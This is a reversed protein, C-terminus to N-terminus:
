CSVWAPGTSCPRFWVFGLWLKRAIKSSDFRYLSKSCCNWCNMFSFMCQSSLVTFVTGKPLSPSHYPCSPRSTWSHPIMAFYSKLMISFRLSVFSYSLLVPSNYGHISHNQVSLLSHAAFASQFPLLSLCSRAVICMQQIPFPNLRFSRMLSM